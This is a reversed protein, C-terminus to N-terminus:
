KTPKKHTRYIEAVAGNRSKNALAIARPPGILLTLRWLSQLILINFTYVSVLVMKKLDKRLFPSPDRWLFDGPICCHIYIVMCTPKQNNYSDAVVGKVAICVYAVYLSCVYSFRRDSRSSTSISSRSISNFLEWLFGNLWVNGGGEWGVTSLFYIGGCYARLLPWWFWMLYYSDMCGYNIFKRLSWFSLVVFSLLYDKKIKSDVYCARFIKESFVEAGYIM